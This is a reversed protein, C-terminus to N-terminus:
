LTKERSYLTSVGHLAMMVERCIVLYLTEEKGNRMGRTHTWWKARVCAHVFARACISVLVDSSSTHVTRADCVADAGAGDGEGERRAYM